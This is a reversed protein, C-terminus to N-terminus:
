IVVVLSVLIVERLEWRDYWVTTEGKSNYPFLKFKKNSDSRTQKSIWLIRIINNISIITELIGNM